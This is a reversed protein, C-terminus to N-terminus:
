RQPKNLTSSFLEYCKALEEFNSAEWRKNLIYFGTKSDLIELVCSNDDWATFRALKDKTDVDVTLSVSDESRHTIVLYESHASIWKLLQELM